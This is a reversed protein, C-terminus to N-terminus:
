DTRVFWTEGHHHGMILWKRSVPTIYVDNTSRCVVEFYKLLAGPLTVFCRCLSDWTGVVLKEDRKVHNLDFQRALWEATLPFPCLMSRHKFAGRGGSENCIQHCAELFGQEWELCLLSFNPLAEKPVSLRWEDQEDLEILPPYLDQVEDSEHIEFPKLKM